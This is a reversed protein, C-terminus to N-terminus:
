LRALVAESEKIVDYGFNFELFDAPNMPVKVGPGLFREAESRVKEAEEQTVNSYIQMLSARARRVDQFGSLRRAIEADLNAPDDDQSVQPLRSFLIGIAAGDEISQAGGQGQHPLMPHAADGILVLRQKYWTPIPERYLLKWLKVEAAKSCAAVLDPHFNQFEALLDSKKAEVNWDEVSAFKENDPHLAVFNQLTGSRCPYWVLRRGGEGAFVKFQGDKEELFHATQKDALLDETPILFRFASQGTPLAPTERGTVLAVAASHVGDAAVILDAKHTTSDDLVVSGASPDLNVVRTRLRLRAPKGIGADQLALEKLSSHLDVRHAFYWPASYTSEVHSYDSKIIANLTSAQAILGKEAVNMRGQVPDLGWGLVVRAANPCVMIAAGTENAFSSKEFIEVDHGARRLGVAASLGAIGAGIIIVKLSQTSGDRTTSEEASFNESDVAM